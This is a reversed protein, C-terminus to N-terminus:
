QDAESFFLKGNWWNKEIISDYKEYFRLADVNWDLLQWKMLTCELLKAEEIVAEFLLRGIGRGRQEPYVVFDELYMMKGKWTSFTLYFLAIGHIVSNEEAVFFDFLKEEFLQVYLEETTVVEGEAKEFIALEQVLSFLAPIDEPMGKRIIVKNNGAREMNQM